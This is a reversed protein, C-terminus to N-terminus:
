KKGKGALEEIVEVMREWSYRGKLRGIGARFEDARGEKYFRIVASALCAADEPPVLYGSVGDEVVEPLGGVRTAVVPVDFAYAIQTIGSQTASLYPLVLLDSCSFYEGVAENPIYQDLVRVYNGIGLREIQKMYPEKDDYFEGAVLLTLKVEKLIHPMADLLVNLGKYARVFGFFMIVPGTLGLAERAEEKDTPKGFVEYLPHPTLAFKANPKISLLDDRVAESMVVFSDAVSFGARTILMDGPRQEHPIANDIIYMVKARCLRKALWLTVTYSVGFFPMWWKLIILDPKQRAIRWAAVPWNFPNLPDLVPTSLVTVPSASEDDQTKGPFLFKPYQRIFRHFM